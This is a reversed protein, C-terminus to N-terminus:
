RIRSICMGVWRAGVGSAGVMMNDNMLKAVVAKRARDAKDKTDTVLALMRETHMLQAHLETM